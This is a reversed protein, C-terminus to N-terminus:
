YSGKRKFSYVVFLEDKFTLAGCKINNFDHKDTKFARRLNVPLLLYRAYSHRAGTKIAKSSFNLNEVSFVALKKLHGKLQLFETERLLANIFIEDNKISGELKRIRM